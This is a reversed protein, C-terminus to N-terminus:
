PQIEKLRSAVRQSISPAVEPVPSADVVEAFFGAVILREAEATPVGHSELYFRQGEDIPGVTSAHSCRVDNTEIELNPVSEAWADDSLKINRNTQFANTGNADPGVRILGTYISRAKDDLVGKFLLNSTADPAVHHQFTRYDVVEEAEGFSVASLNGTAGRGVLECSIAQRTYRGGFAGFHGDYTGQQDVTARHSGVIWSDPGADAVLQYGLRAAPGVRIETRPVILAAIDPSAIVFEVVRVSANDGADIVLQSSVAAGATDVYNVVVVPDAADHGADVAIKLPDVVYGFNVLTFWDSDAGPLELGSPESRTVMGEVVTAAGNHLVALGARNPVSAIAAAVAPVATIDSRDGAPDLPAFDSVVLDGIPAYRWEELETSPLSRTLAETRAENQVTAFADSLDRPTGWEITPM